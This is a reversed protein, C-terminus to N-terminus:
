GQRLMVRDTGSHQRLAKAIHEPIFGQATAAVAKSALDIIRANVLYGDRHKVLTGSLIYQIAQSGTLDRVDRSFIFDGDPTIRLAGALKFDVVPIGFQHLEHIFSEAIQNGLLSTQNLDSDVFVFSSVGVTTKNNMPKFNAVLSQMVGRVYHNINNLSAKQVPAHHTTLRRVPESSLERTSDTAICGSLLLSLLLSNLLSNKM